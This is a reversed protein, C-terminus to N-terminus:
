GGGNVPEMAGDRVIWKAPGGDSNRWADLSKGDFLVVADSPPPTPLHSEGPQVTPPLPRNMDHQKWGTSLQASAHESIALLALDIWLIQFIMALLKPQLLCHIRM